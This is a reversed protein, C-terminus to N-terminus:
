IGKVTNIFERIKEPDKVGDTEVGSSVDVCFPNLTEIAARVNQPNLGGALFYPGRRFDKIVNWDFQNGAGGRQVSLTDFLLFDAAETADPMTDGVAVSKIITGDCIKKLRRIYEDDEDGHLQAADIIGSNCLWAVREIDQNNVFVGIALVRDDLRRRLATATEESVRRKSEAFVFGVFEPLLINVADVDEPRTLGCIKVKTM